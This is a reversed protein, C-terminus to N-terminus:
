PTRPSAGPCCRSPPTTCGARRLRVAPLGRDAGAAERRLRVLRSRDLGAIGNKRFVLAASIRGLGDGREHLPREAMRRDLADDRVRKGIEARRDPDQLLASERQDARAFLFPGDAELPTPSESPARPSGQGSGTSPLGRPLRVARSRISSRSTPATPCRARTTSRRAARARRRRVGCDDALHLEEAQPHGERDDRTRVALPADNVQLM